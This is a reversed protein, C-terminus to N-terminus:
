KADKVLSLADAVEQCIETADLASVIQQFNFSVDYKTKCHESLRKMVEKGSVPKLMGDTTQWESEVKKTAERFAQSAHLFTILPIHLQM